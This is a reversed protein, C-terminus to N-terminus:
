FGARVGVRVSGGRRRRRSGREVPYGRPRAGHGWVSLPRARKWIPRCVFRATEDEFNLRARSASRAGEGEERRIPPPIRARAGGSARVREPSAARRARSVSARRYLHTRHGRLRRPAARARPPDERTKRSSSWCRPFSRRVSLVREGRASASALRPSQAAGPLRRPGAPAALLEAPGASARARAVVVARRSGRARPSFGAANSSVGSLPSSSARARPPRRPPSRAAAGIEASRVRSSHRAGGAVRPGRGRGRGRRAQELARRAARGARVFGPRPPLLRFGRALSCGGGRRGGRGRGSGRDRGRGRARCRARGRGRDGDPGDYAAAAAYGAAAAKSVRRRAGELLATSRWRADDGDGGRVSSASVSELEAEEPGEEEERPGAAGARAHVRAVVGGLKPARLLLGSSLTRESSSAVSVDGAPSSFSFSAAGFRRRPAGTEGGDGGRASNSPLAPAPSSSIMRSSIMRSSPLSLLREEVNTGSAAVGEPGGRFM